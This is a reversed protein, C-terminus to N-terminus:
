MFASILWKLDEGAHEVVLVIIQLFNNYYEIGICIEGVLRSAGMYIKFKKSIYEHYQTNSTTTVKNFYKRPMYM